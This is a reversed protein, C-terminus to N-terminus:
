MDALPDGWPDVIKPRQNLATVGPGVVVDAAGYQAYGNIELEDALEPGGTEVIRGQVLIHIFDPKLENLLRSYHTIALVGLNSEKTAAEVRRSVDRLADVDLGSDIEDLIAFRPNLVGLMLTENRKKEGGSLDVNLPRDLFREDFGIRGAEVVMQRNVEDLDGGGARVAERLMDSLSVGPVEIPYQMALFLGAHAREATPRGLLEEGDISVRGSVDQYGPRGMIVHSLTSKGSGNPGMVAHVEGSKVELDIGRLIEQGPVSAKLNEILLTSM